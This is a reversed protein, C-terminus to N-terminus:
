YNKYEVEKGKHQVKIPETENGDVQKENLTEQNEVKSYLTGETGQYKSNYAKVINERVSRWYEAEKNGTVINKVQEIRNDIWDIVKEITSRDTSDILETVFEQNGLNEGLYKATMEENILDNAQKENLGQLQESYANAVSQRNAEYNPDQALKDMVLKTLKDHPKAGITDHFMEHTIVKQLATDSNAPNIYVTRNKSDIMAEEDSNKFMNADYIAQLGRKETFQQMTQVAPNEVDINNARASELYVKQNNNKYGEQQAQKDNKQKNEQKIQSLDTDIYSQNTQDLANAYASVAEKTTLNNSKKINNIGSIMSAGGTFGASVSADVAEKMVQNWDIDTTYKYADENSTMNMIPNLVKKEIVDALVEETGEGLMTGGLKVATKGYVNKINKALTSTLKEDLPTGNFLKGGMLGFLNETLLEIGASGASHLWVQGNTRNNNPNLENETFGEKLSGGLASGYITAQSLGTGVVPVANMAMYTGSQGVGELVQGGEQSLFSKPELYDQIDQAVTKQNRINNHIRNYLEEDGNNKAGEAIGYSIANALNTGVNSVGNVISNFAHAVTNVGAGLVDIGTNLIDGVQYGDEFRNQISGNDVYRTLDLPNKSEQSAQEVKEWTNTKQVQQSYPKLEGKKWAEHEELFAKKREKEEEERKKKWAEHEELFSM